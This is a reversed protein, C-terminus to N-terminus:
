LGPSTLELRMGGDVSGDGMFLGANSQCQRGEINGVIEWIDGWPTVTAECLSSNLETETGKERQKGGRDKRRERGRPIHFHLPYFTISETSFVQTQTWTSGNM